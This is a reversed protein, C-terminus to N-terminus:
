AGSSAGHGRRRGIAARHGGRPASSSGGSRCAGSAWPPTPPRDRAGTGDMARAIRSGPASPCPWSPGEWTDQQRERLRRSTTRATAHRARPRSGPPPSLPCPPSLGRRVRTGIGTTWVTWLALPYPTTSPDPELLQLPHLSKLAWPAPRGATIPKPRAGPRRAPRGWSRRSSTGPTARSVRPSRGAAPGCRLSRGGGPPCRSSGSSASSSPPWSPTRRGGSSVRSRHGVHHLRVVIGLEHLARLAERATSYAVGVEGAIREEHRQDLPTVATAWYAALNDLVALVVAIGVRLAPRGDRERDLQLASVTRPGHAAVLRASPVGRCGV